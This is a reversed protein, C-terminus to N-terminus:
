CIDCLFYELKNNELSGQFMFLPLDQAELKFEVLHLRLNVPLYCLFILLDVLHLSVVESNHLGHLAGQISLDPAPIFSQTQLLLHLSVGAGVQLPHLPIQFLRHLVQLVTQIFGLLQCQLTSLLLTFNQFKSSHSATSAAPLFNLFPNSIMLNTSMSLPVPM